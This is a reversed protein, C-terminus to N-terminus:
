PQKGRPPVVLKFAKEFAERSKAGLERATEKFREVQPKESAGKKAQAKAEAKPWLGM